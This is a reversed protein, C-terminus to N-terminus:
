YFQACNWQLYVGEKNRCTENQKAMTLSSVQQLLFPRM